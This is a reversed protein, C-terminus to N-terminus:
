RTRLSDLRSQLSAVERRLAAVERSRAHSTRDLSDLRAALLTQRTKLDAVAAPRPDRDVLRIAAIIALLALGAVSAWFVLAEGWHAFLTVPADSRPRWQVRLARGRPEARRM